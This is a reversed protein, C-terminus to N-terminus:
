ANRIAHRIKSEEDPTLRKQHVKLAHERGKAMVEDDNAGTMEHNCDKMGADRCLLKRM